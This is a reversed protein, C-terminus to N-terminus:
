SSRGSGYLAGRSGEVLEARRASARLLSVQRTLLHHATVAGPRAQREFITHHPIKRPTIQATRDGRFRTEHRHGEVASSGSSPPHPDRRQAGRAPTRSGH